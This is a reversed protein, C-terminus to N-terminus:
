KSKKKEEELRKKEIELREQEAEAREKEAEIQERILSQERQKQLQYQYEIDDEQFQSTLKDNRFLFISNIARIEGHYFANGGLEVRERYILEECFASDTDYFVNQRFPSGYLSIFESKKMGLLPPTDIFQSSKRLTTCSVALFSLLLLFLTNKSTINM